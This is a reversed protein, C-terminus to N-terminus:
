RFGQEEELSIATGGVGTGSGHLRLRTSSAATRRIFEAGFRLLLSGTSWGGVFSRDRGAPATFM